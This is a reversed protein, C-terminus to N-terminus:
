PEIKYLTVVGAGGEVVYEGDPSIACPYPSRENPAWKLGSRQWKPRWSVLAKGAGFDWLTRKKLQGERWVLDSWDLKRSRESVIARRARSATEISPAQWGKTLALLKGTDADVCAVTRHWEAGGVGCIAEGGDAFKAGDMLPWQRIVKESNVDLVSIKWEVTQQNASPPLAVVSAEGNRQHEWYLLLLGRDASVDYLNWLDTGLEFEATEHCDPAFETLRMPKYQGRVITGSESYVLPSQIGVIMGSKAFGFPPVIQKAFPLFCTNGNSLEIVKPGLLVEQGSPSWSLETSLTKESGKPNIEFRINSTQPADSDLILVSGEEISRGVVAAIRRGDPSFDLAFVVLAAGTGGTGDRDSANFDWVKVLHGAVAIKGFLAVEALVVLLLGRTNM